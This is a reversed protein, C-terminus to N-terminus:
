MYMYTVINSFRTLDSTDRSLMQSFHALLWAISYVKTVLCKVEALMESSVTQKSNSMLMLKEGLMM